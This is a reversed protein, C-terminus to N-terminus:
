KTQVRRYLRKSRDEPRMLAEGAEIIALRGDACKAGLRTQSKPLRVEKGAATRLLLTRAGEDVVVGALGVHAPNAADLVTVTLGMWEEVMVPDLAEM